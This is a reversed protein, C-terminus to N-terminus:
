RIRISFKSQCFRAIKTGSLLVGSPRRSTGILPRTKEFEATRIHWSAPPSPIETLAGQMPADSFDSVQAKENVMM